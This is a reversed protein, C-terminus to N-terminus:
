GLDTMKVTGSSPNNKKIFYLWCVFKKLNLSLKQLGQEHNFINYYIKKTILKEKEIKSIYFSINQKEEGNGNKNRQKREFM